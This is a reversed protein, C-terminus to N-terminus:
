CSENIEGRIDRLAQLVRHRTDSNSCEVLLALHDVLGYMLTNTHNIRGELRAIEDKASFEAEDDPLKLERGCWPCYQIILVDEYGQWHFHRRDDTWWIEGQNPPGSYCIGHPTKYSIEECYKCM